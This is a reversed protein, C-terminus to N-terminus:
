LWGLRWLQSSFWLIDYKHCYFSVSLSWHLSRIMLFIFPLPRRHTHRLSFSLSTKILINEEMVNRSCLCCGTKLWPKGNTMDQRWVTVYILQLHVRIISICCSLPLACIYQLTLTLNHYHRSGLGGPSYCAYCYSNYKDAKLFCLMFDILELETRDHTHTHLLHKLLHWPFRLPSAISIKAIQSTVSSRKWIARQFSM